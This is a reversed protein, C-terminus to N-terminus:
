ERSRDRYLTALYGRWDFAESPEAVRWQVESIGSPTLIGVVSVGRHPFAALAPNGMSVMERPLTAVAEEFSAATHAFTRPQPSEGPRAALGLATTAIRRVIAEHVGDKILGITTVLYGANSAYFQEQFVPEGGPTAAAWTVCALVAGATNSTAVVYRRIVLHLDLKPDAPVTSASLHRALTDRLSQEISRLDDAGFKGWPQVHLAELYATDPAMAASAVRPAARFTVNEPFDLPLVFRSTEGKTGCASLVACALMVMIRTTLFGSKM